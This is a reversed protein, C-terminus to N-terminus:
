EGQVIEYLEVLKYPKTCAIFVRKGEFDGCKGVQRVVANEGGINARDIACRMAKAM